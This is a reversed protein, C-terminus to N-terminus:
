GMLGKSVNPNIFPHQEGAGPAPQGPMMQAGQQPQPQGQGMQGSLVEDFLIGLEPFMKLLVAVTQPTIISSFVQMEEPSLQQVREFMLMQLEEGDIQPGGEAYESEMEEPAAGQPAQQQMPTQGQQQMMPNM